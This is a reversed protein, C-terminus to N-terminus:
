RSLRGPVQRRGAVSGRQHDAVAGVPVGVASSKPDDGGTRDIADWGRPDVLQRRRTITARQGDLASATSRLSAGPRTDPLSSTSRRVMAMRGASGAASLSM